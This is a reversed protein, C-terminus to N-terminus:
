PEPMRPLPAPPESSLPTDGQLRRLIDALIRADKFAWDHPSAGPPTAVWWPTQGPPATREMGIEDDGLRAYAFIPYLDEWRAPLADLSRIFASGPRMPAQLPSIIVVNRAANAGRHPTCITFLRGIGLRRAPRIGISPDMAAYRAAIGGMSYGVVDVETTRNPDSTPFARDVADIILQRCENFSQAYGPSVAIIRRDGTYRRLDGALVPAAVGPDLFGGIVVVPRVMPHPRKAAQRLLREADAMSLPFSPNVTQDTACGALM